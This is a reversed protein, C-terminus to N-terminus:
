WYEIIRIKGVEMLFLFVYTLLFFVQLSHVATVSVKCWDSAPLTLGTAKNIVHHGFVTSHGLLRNEIPIPNM